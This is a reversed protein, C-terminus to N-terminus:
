CNLCHIRREKCICGFLIKFNEFFTKKNRWQATYQIISMQIQYILHQQKKQDAVLLSRFRFDIGSARDDLHRCQKVHYLLVWSLSQNTLRFNALQHTQTALTWQVTYPEFNWCSPRSTCLTLEMFAHIPLNSHGQTVSKCLARVEANKTPGERLLQWHEQPRVPKVGVVMSRCTFFLRQLFTFVM